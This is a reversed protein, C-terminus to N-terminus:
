PLTRTGIIWVKLGAGAITSGIQDVFIKIESDDALSADTITAQTSNPYSSKASVDIQCKTGLITTGSEHIDVHLSSGTPATTVSARIGTVTMAYPMRFTMKEVSTSATLATTEDSCAIGIVTPYSAKSVFNSSVWGQTAGGTTGVAQRLEFGTFTTGNRIFLFSSSEGNTPQPATSLGSWTIGTPWTVTKNNPNYLTLINDRRKSNSMLIRTNATLTDVTITNNWDLYVTDSTVAYSLTGFLFDQSFNSYGASNGAAIGWALNLNEPLNIVNVFTDPFDERFLYTTTWNTTGYNFKYKTAGTVKRWKFTYDPPILWANATPQVIQTPIDPITEGPGGGDTIIGIPAGIDRWQKGGSFFYIRDNTATTISKNFTVTGAHHDISSIRVIDVTSAHVILLSDGYLTFGAGWVTGVTYDDRFLWTDVGLTQTASTTGTVIQSLAVAKGKAASTSKPRFDYSGVWATPYVPANEFGPDAWISSDEGGKCITGTVFSVHNTM